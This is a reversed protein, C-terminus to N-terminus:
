CLQLIAFFPIMLNRFKRITFESVGYKVWNTMWGSVIFFLPMHFAWIFRSAVDPITTHGLVMLIITIGKAIDIWKNREKM